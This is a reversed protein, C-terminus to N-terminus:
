ANALFVIIVKFILNKNSLLENLKSIEDTLM